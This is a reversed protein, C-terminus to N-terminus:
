GDQVLFHAYASAVPKDRDEQWAFAQVTTVRRGQKTIVGAAYTEVARASRLYDVTINIIKPFGASEPALLLSFIAASELLGGMTGGHLAPITSNGVLKPDFRLTTVLEDGRMAVSLGLFRAFPIAEVFRGFDRSARAETLLARLEEAKM